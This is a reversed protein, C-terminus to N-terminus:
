WVLRDFHEPFVGVLLFTPLDSKLAQMCTWIWRDLEDREYQAINQTKLYHLEKLLAYINGTDSDSDITFDDFSGHVASHHGIVPFNLPEEMRLITSKLIWLRLRVYTLHHTRGRQQRRFIQAHIVPGNKVSAYKPTPNEKREKRKRLDEELEEYDGKNNLILTGDPLRM